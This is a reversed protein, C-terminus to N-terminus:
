PKVFKGCGAADVGKNFWRAKVMANGGAKRFKLVEVQEDGSAKVWVVCLEINNGFEALLTKFQEGFEGPKKRSDFVVLYAREVHYSVAYELVQACGNFVEYAKQTSKYVKFEVVAVSRGGQKIVGDVSGKGDKASNEDCGIRGVKEACSDAESGEPLFELGAANLQIKETFVCKQRWIQESSVEQNILCRICMAHSELVQCLGQDIDSSSENLM